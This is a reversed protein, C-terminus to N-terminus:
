HPPNTLHQTIQRDLHREALHAPRPTDHTRQYEHCATCLGLAKTPGAGCNQCTM